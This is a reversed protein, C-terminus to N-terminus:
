QTVRLNAIQGAINDFVGALQGATYGTYADGTTACSQLISSDADTTGITYLTIGTAKIATCVAKTETDINSQTFSFRNQTNQGDTFFVIFQKIGTSGPGGLARNASPFMPFNQTLMNWGWDLGITLDTDGNALMGTENSMTGNISVSGTGSNCSVTVAFTFNCINTWGSPTQGSSPNCTSDNDPRCLLRDALLQLNSSYYIDQLPIMAVPGVTYDGCDINDAPFLTPTSSSSPAANSISYDIGTTNTSPNGIQDRDVVCGSWNSVHASDFASPMTYWSETRNQPTTRGRSTHPCSYTGSNVQSFYTDNLLPVQMAYTNPDTCTTGATYSILDELIQPAFNVYSAQTAATNGVQIQTGASDVVNPDGPNVVNVDTTFTSMGIKVIGAASASARLDNLFLMVGQKLGTIKTVNTYSATSGDATSAMSGTNDLVLAVEINFGQVTVISEAVYTPTTVGGIGTQCSVTAEIENTTPYSLSPTTGNCVAAGGNASWFNTLISTRDGSIDAQNLASKPTAAVAILAADLDALIREQNATQMAEVLGEFAMASLPGYIIGFMLAIVGSRSGLLRRMFGIFSNSRM